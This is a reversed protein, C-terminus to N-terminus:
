GILLEYFRLSSKSLHYGSCIEPPSSRRILPNGAVSCILFFFSEHNFLYIFQHFDSSFMIVPWLSYEKQKMNLTMKPKHKCILFVILKTYKRYLFVIVLVDLDYKLWYFFLNSFLVLLNQM